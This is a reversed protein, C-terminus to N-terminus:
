KFTWINSFRQIISTYSRIRHEDKRNVFPAQIITNYDCNYAIMIHENGSRSRIPCRGCDDTYVKCIAKDCIHLEKTKHPPPIDEVDSNKEQTGQNPGKKNDRTQHKTKNTSRVGQLSQVM